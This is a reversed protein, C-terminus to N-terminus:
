TSKRDTLGIAKSMKRGRRPSAYAQDAGIFGIHGAPRLRAHRLETIGKPRAGEPPFPGIPNARIRQVPAVAGRLPADGVRIDVFYAEESAKHRARRRQLPLRHPTAIQVTTGSM